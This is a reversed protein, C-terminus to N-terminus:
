FIKKFARKLWNGPRRNPQWVSWPAMDSTRLNRLEPYRLDMEIIDATAHHKVGAAWESMWEILALDRRPFGPRPDPMVPRTLPIWITGKRDRFGIDLFKGRDVAHRLLMLLQGMQFLANTLSAYYVRRNGPLKDFVSFMEPTIM